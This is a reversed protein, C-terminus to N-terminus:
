RFGDEGSLRGSIMGMAIKLLVEVAGRDGNGM